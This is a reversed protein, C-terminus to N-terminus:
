NCIKWNEATDWSLQNVTYNIEGKLTQQYGIQQNGMNSSAWVFISSVRLQIKEDTSNEVVGKVTADPSSSFSTGRFLDGCVTTGIKRMAVLEKARREKAIKLNSEDWSM